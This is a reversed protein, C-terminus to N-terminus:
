QATLWQHSARSSSDYILIKVKIESSVDWCSQHCGWINLVRAELGGAAIEVDTDWASFCCYKQLRGSNFNRLYSKTPRMLTLRRIFIRFHTIINHWWVGRQQPIVQSINETRPNSPRLIITVYKPQYLIACRLLRKIANWFCQRHTHLSTGRKCCKSLPTCFHMSIHFLATSWIMMGAIPAIGRRVSLTNQFRSVARVHVFSNKIIMSYDLFTKGSCGKQTMINYVM